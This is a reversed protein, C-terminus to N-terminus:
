VIPDVPLVKKEVGLDGFYTVNLYKLLRNLVPQWLAVVTAFKAPDLDAIAASIAVISASIVNWVFLRFWKKQRLNKFFTKM